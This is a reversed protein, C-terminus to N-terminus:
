TVGNENTIIHNNQKNDITVSSSAKSSSVSPLENRLLNGISSGDISLVDSTSPVSEDCIMATCGVTRSIGGESDIINDINSCIPSREAHLTVSVLGTATLFSSFTTPWTSVARNSTSESDQDITKPGHRWPQVTIRRPWEDEKNMKAADISPIRRYVTYTSLRYVALKFAKTTSNSSSVDFCFVFTLHNVTHFLTTFESAVNCICYVSKNVDIHVAAKLKYCEETGVLSSATTRTVKSMPPRRANLTYYDNQIGKLLVNSFKPVKPPNDDTNNNDATSSKKQKNLQRKSKRSRVM